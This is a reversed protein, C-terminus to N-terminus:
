CHLQLRLATKFLGHATQDSQWTGAVALACIGQVKGHLHKVRCLNRVYAPGTGVGRSHVEASSCGWTWANRVRIFGTRQREAADYLRLMVKAAVM